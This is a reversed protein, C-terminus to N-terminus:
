LFYHDSPSTLDPAKKGTFVIKDACGNLISFSKLFTNLGFPYIHKLDDTHIYIKLLDHSNNKLINLLEHASSGDFDGYLKLHIRDESRDLLIKFNSAM